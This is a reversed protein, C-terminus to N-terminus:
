RNSRSKQSLYNILPLLRDPIAADGLQLTRNNDASEIQLKHVFRDAMSSSSDNEVILNFFDVEEILQVLKEKEDTQLTDTDIRLSNTFGAFGGSREYSIIYRDQMGDINFVLLLLFAQLYMAM